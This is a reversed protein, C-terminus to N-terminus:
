LDLYSLVFVSAVILSVPGVSIFLAMGINLPWTIPIGEYVATKLLPIVSTPLTIMWWIIYALPLTAALRSWKATRTKGIESNSGNMNPGGKHLDNFKFEAKEEDMKVVFEIVSSNM